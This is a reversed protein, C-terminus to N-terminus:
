ECGKEKSCVDMIYNEEIPDAKEIIPNILKTVAICDDLTIFGSKKDIVIRLFMTGEEKVYLVEDLIFANETIVGEILSRVKECVEM